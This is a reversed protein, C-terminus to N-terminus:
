RCRCNPRDGIFLVGCQRCATQKGRLAITGEDHINDLLDFRVYVEYHERHVKEISIGCSSMWARNNRWKQWFQDTARFVCYGIRPADKSIPQHRFLGALSSNEIKTRIEQITM